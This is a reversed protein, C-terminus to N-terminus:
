LDFKVWLSSSLCIVQLLTWSVVVIFSALFYFDTGVFGHDSLDPLVETWGVLGGAVCFLTALARDFRHSPKKRLLLDSCGRAIMILM